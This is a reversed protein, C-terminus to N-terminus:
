CAHTALTKTKFAAQLNHKGNMRGRWQVGSAKGVVVEQLLAAKEALRGEQHAVGQNLKHLAVVLDQHFLIM